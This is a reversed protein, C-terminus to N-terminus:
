YDDDDDDGPQFDEDAEDDEEAADVMREGMFESGESGESKVSVSAHKRFKKPGSCKAPKTPKRPKTVMNTRSKVVPKTSKAPKAPKNPKPSSASKLNLKLTKPQVRANDKSPPTPNAPLAVTTRGQPDKPSSPEQKVTPPSSSPQGIIRYGRDKVNPNPPTHPIQVSSKQSTADTFSRKQSKHWSDHTQKDSPPNSTMPPTTKSYHSNPKVLDTNPQITHGGGVNMFQGGIQAFDMGHPPAAIDESLENQIGYPGTAPPGFTNLLYTIHEEETEMGPPMLELKWPEDLPQDEDMEQKYGYTARLSKVNRESRVLRDFEELADEGRDQSELLVRSCLTCLPQGKLGFETWPKIYINKHCAPVECVNWDSQKMTAKMHPSQNFMRYRFGMYAPCQDWIRREHSDYRNNLYTVVNSSSPISEDANTLDDEISKQQAWVISEAQTEPGSSHSRRQRKPPPEPQERDDQDEEAQWETQSEVAGPDEHKELADQYDPEQNDQSNLNVTRTAKVEKEDESASRPHEQEDDSQPKSQDSSTTQGTRDEDQVDEETELDQPESNTESQTHDEAHTQREASTGHDVQVKNLADSAQNPSDEVPSSSSSQNDHKGLGDEGPAGEEGGSSSSEGSIEEDGVIIANPANAGAKDRGIGFVTTDNAYAKAQEATEEDEIEGSEIARFVVINDNPDKNHQRLEGVTTLEPM